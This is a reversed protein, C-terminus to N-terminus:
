ISEMAHTLHKPFAKSLFLRVATTGKRYDDVGPNLHSEVWLGFLMATLGTHLSNLDVPDYGGEDILTALLKRTDLAYEQDRPLSLDHYLSNGKVEGWFAHWASILDPNESAFRVDFEVLRLLKEIASAGGSSLVAQWGENYQKGLSNLVEVLLGKKSKFHFVVLARSVGAGEAVRDLTTNSLGKTAICAIAAQLILQRSEEGKIRRKDLAQM